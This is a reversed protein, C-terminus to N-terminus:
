AMSGFTKVVEAVTKLRLRTGFYTSALLISMKNTLFTGNRRGEPLALTLLEVDTASWGTAAAM